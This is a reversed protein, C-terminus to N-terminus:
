NIYFDCFFDNLCIKPEPTNVNWADLMETIVTRFHQEDTPSCFLHCHELRHTRLFDFFKCFNFNSPFINQVKLNKLKSLPTM